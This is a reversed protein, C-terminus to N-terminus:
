RLEGNEIDDFSWDEYKTNYYKTNMYDILRQDDIFTFNCGNHKNIFYILKILLHANHHDLVDKEKDTYCYDIKDYEKLIDDIKWNTAYSLIIGRMKYLNSFFYDKGTKDTAIIYYQTGM